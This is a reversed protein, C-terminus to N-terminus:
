ENQVRLKAQISGNKGANQIGITFWIKGDWNNPAYNKLELRYTSSQGINIFEHPKKPVGWGPVDNGWRKIDLMGIGLMVRKSYGYPTHYDIIFGAFANEDYHM